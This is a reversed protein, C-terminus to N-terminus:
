AALDFKCKGASERDLYQALYFALFELDKIIGNNRVVLDYSFNMVDQDSFNEPIRVDRKVLLTLCKKKFAWKIKEIEEAERVHVFVAEVNPRNWRIAEIRSQIYWFPGDNLDVLSQKIRSMTERALDSKDERTWGCKEMLEKVPDISSINVVEISAFRQVLKVFTDKGSNAAGNIIIIKMSSEKRHKSKQSESFMQLRDTGSRDGINGEGVFISHDDPARRVM